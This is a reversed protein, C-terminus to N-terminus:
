EAPCYSSQEYGTASIKKLKRELLAAILLDVEKDGLTIHAIGCQSPTTSTTQITLQTHKEKGVFATLNLEMKNTYGQIDLEPKADSSDVTTIRAYTNSM